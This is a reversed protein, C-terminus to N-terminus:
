LENVDTFAYLSPAVLLYLDPALYNFELSHRATFRDRYAQLERVADEGAGLEYLRRLLFRRTNPDTALFYRRTLFAIEEPSAQVSDDAFESLGARARILRRQYATSFLLMHDTARPLEAAKQAYHVIEELDQLREEPTRHYLNGIHNVAISFPLRPDNPFHQAGIKLIRNAEYVDEYTMPIALVRRNASHWHYVPYFYPDLHVIADAFDTIERVGHRRRYQEAIYLIGNVWIIDSAATRYNLSATQITPGEPLVYTSGIGGPAQTARIVGMELHSSLLFFLATIIASFLLTQKIM